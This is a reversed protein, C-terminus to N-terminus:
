LIYLISVSCGSNYLWCLQLTYIVLSDGLVTTDLDKLNFNDM